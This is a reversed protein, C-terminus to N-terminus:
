RTSKLAEEAWEVAQEYRAVLEREEIGEALALADCTAWQGQEYNELWRLLARESNTKGKLAERVEERLPLSPVVKDMPVRLMAPLLSLMGLLFQESSNQLCLAASLECFRGRIFAMRLIEAPQDINLESAIALM